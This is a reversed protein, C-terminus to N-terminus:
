GGWYKKGIANGILYGTAMQPDNQMMRLIDLKNRDFTLFGSNGGYNRNKNDANTHKGHYNRVTREEVNSCAM